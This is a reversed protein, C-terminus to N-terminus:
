TSSHCKGFTVGLKLAVCLGSWFSTEAKMCRLGLPVSDYILVPTHRWVWVESFTGRPYKCLKRTDLRQRSVGVYWGQGM